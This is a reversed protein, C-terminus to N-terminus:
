QPRVLVWILGSARDSDLAEMATGVITGPPYFAVDGVKVPAAKRVQGASGATLRDGPQIDGAGAAAKVQAPGLVVIFLYEGPAIAGDASRTHPSSLTEAQGDRQVETLKAETVLRRYVVGVVADAAADTASARRVLPLPAEGDALVAGIGSVAVVDGTELSGTDGSQAVIMLPGGSALTTGAYIKDPTYVGWEHDAQDTDAYVGDWGASYVAVGDQGASGVSVGARDARGVYLGHGEAGAVEFGNKQTSSSTTSSSGARYVFVGDDGTEGVSVGRDGAWFVTVGDGGATGVFVGYGGATGVNVGNYDASFVSVGDVDASVVTVGDGGAENVYMGDRDARGVYLGHGEAGGVEFGNKYTSLTSTSPNGALEVSVGDDGASYVFVGDSGASIVGVGALDARGVYLGAGEAGAVEFGNKFVSLTSTSPNGATGVFVGDGGAENVYVGSNGATQVRVGDWGAWDVGVGIADSSYVRLGVGGASNVAVGEGHDSELSIGAMDGSTAKNHISAGPRLSLAYPAATLAQRPTLPTYAGTSSGPRVGIALYLADGGFVAGFDLSVTFLGETVQKNDVAVPSGVPSDATPDDHLTFQFDYQGSAPSGGDTLRGQYTFATGLSALRDPPAPGQALISGGAALFLGLIALLKFLTENKM